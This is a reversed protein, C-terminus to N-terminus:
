YLQTVIENIMKAVSCRVQCGLKIEWWGWALHPNQWLSLHSVAPSCYFNQEGKGLVASTLHTFTDHSIRYLPFSGALSVGWGDIAILGQTNGQWTLATAMAGVVGASFGIFFLPTHDLNEQSLWQQLKPFNYPEISRPTILYDARNRWGLNTIFDATLQPSHFGPCIIIM